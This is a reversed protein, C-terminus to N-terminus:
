DNGYLYSSPLIYDKIAYLSQAYWHIGNQRSRTPADNTFLGLLSNVARYPMFSIHALSQSNVLAYCSAAISDVVVTGEKTLPAIVGRGLTASVEIVRQPELNNNVNVLLYNDEEIKDAYVYKTQKKHPLWVLLLHAPTVRIVKGGATKIQVFERTQNLNRDLFLIVESYITEGKSNVSMIKEGIKLDKLQRREGTETQV